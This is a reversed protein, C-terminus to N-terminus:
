SPAIVDDWVGEGAVKVMGPRDTRRYLAERKRRQKGLRGWSCVYVCMGDKMVVVWNGDHREVVVVALGLVYLQGRQCRRVRQQHLVRVAALGGTLVVGQLAVDDLGDTVEGAGLGPSLGALLLM